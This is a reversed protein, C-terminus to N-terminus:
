GQQSLFGFFSLHSSGEGMAEEGAQSSGAHRKNRPFLVPISSSTATASWAPHGNEQKGFRMRLLSPFLSPAAATASLPTASHPQESGSLALEPRNGEPHILTSNPPRM